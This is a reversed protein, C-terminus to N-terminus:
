NNKGNKPNEKPIFRDREHAGCDPVESLDIKNAKANAERLAQSPVIGRAYFEAARAEAGPIIFRVSEEFMKAQENTIFLSKAYGDIFMCDAVHPHKRVNASMPLVDESPICLNLGDFMIQEWPRTLAIIGPLDIRLESTEKSDMVIGHSDLLWKLTADELSSDVCIPWSVLGSSSDSFTLFKWSSM